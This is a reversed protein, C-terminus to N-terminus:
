LNNFSYSILLYTFNKFKCSRMTKQCIYHFNSNCSTDHWAGNGEFFVVCNENGGSNPQNSGWNTFSPTKGDLTYFKDKQREILGIWPYTFKKEKAVKWIANHEELNLPLVLDGGVNQCSTRAKSM